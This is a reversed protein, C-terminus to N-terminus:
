SVRNNELYKLIIDTLKKVDKKKQLFEVSSEFIPFILGNNVLGQNNHPAQFYNVFQIVSNKLNEERYVKRTLIILLNIAEQIQSVGGGFPHDPINVFSQTFRQKDQLTQDYPFLELFHFLLKIGKIQRYYDSSVPSLKSRLWRFFFGSFMLAFAVALWFTGSDINNMFCRCLSEERTKCISYASILSEQQYRVFAIIAGTFGLGELIKFLLNKTLGLFINTIFQM